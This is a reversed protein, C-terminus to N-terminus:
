TYYNKVMEDLVRSAMAASSGTSPCKGTGRLENVVMQILNQSIHGPNDFKMETVGNENILKVAEHTFSPIIIEGKEGTITIADAASSKDAVFCWSGSGTVGSEHKWSGVVTDEAPYLGARNAAIGHVETVPGFVFNLYDFQHSALDFFYGGGSIEPYVHWSQEKKVLDNQRPPKHLKVNVTLPKGITGNNVMEKVKLFAPLSRRYYAVWIPMGTEESVELMKLCEAFNKAMPKEVYVPKGARMVEIAYKAHSDPPTAIYVADVEPDNILETANNYWKPVHHRKAYDAAKEANRRMVAVLKSHEAKNFAPGSKMETVNGVGIIGWRVTDFKKM